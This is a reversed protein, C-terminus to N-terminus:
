PIITFRLIEIASKKTKGRVVKDSSLFSCLVDRFIDSDMNGLNEGMERKYATWIETSKIKAGPTEVMHRKWWEVFETYEGEIKNTEESLLERIQADTTEFNHALQRMLTDREKNAKILRGLIEKAKQEKERMIHIAGEEGANTIIMQQIARSSFWVSRLLERPDEQKLLCNIYCVCKKPDIWEFMFPAKDYRDIMTDMSVLWAINIHENKLLDRKIKERSTNNVKNTYLKSDVLVTMNEFELHFDGMGGIACVEKVAFGEFDRFVATALEKFQSEGIKGITAVDKKQIIADLKAISKEFMARYDANQREKEQLLSNMIDLERRVIQKAEDEIRRTQAQISDAKWRELEDIQARMTAREKNTTELCLEYASKTQLIRKQIEADATDEQRKLLAKQVQLEMDKEKLQARLTETNKAIIDRHTEAEIDLRIQHIANWGAVLIATQEEPSLKEAFPYAFTDLVTLIIQKTAISTMHYLRILLSLLICPSM